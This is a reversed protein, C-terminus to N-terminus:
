NFLSSIPDADQRQVPTPSTRWGNASYANEVVGRHLVRCDWRPNGNPFEGPLRRCFGYDGNHRATTLRTDHEGNPFADFRQQGNAFQIIGNNHSAIRGHIEADAFEQSNVFAQESSPAGVPAAPKKPVPTRVPPQEIQKPQEPAPVQKEIVKPVEVTVVKETVIPKEIEIKEIEKQVVVRETTVIKPEILHSLGWAGLGVGAGAALSAAGIALFLRAKATARVSQTHADLASYDHEVIYTKPLTTPM